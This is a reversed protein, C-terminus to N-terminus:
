DFWILLWLFYWVSGESPYFFKSTKKKEIKQKSALDWWDFVFILLDGSLVQLLNEGLSKMFHFYMQHWSSLINKTCRVRTFRFYEYFQNCFSYKLNLLRKFRLYLFSKRRYYMPSKKYIMAFIKCNKMPFGVNIKWQIQM